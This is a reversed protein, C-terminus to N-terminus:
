RLNVKKDETLENPQKGTLAAKVYGYVHLVTSSPSDWYEGFEPKVRILAISPDDKGEPFWTRMGESWHKEIMAKDRVIEARGSVSIYHQKEPDSYGLNVQHDRSIEQTKGSPAQTFFWLHGNEDAAQNYMPRSRLSGDPEVTTMMAIRVDKILDFLKDRAERDHTGHHM